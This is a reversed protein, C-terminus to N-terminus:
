RQTRELIQSVADKHDLRGFNNVFNYKLHSSCFTFRSKNLDSLHRAAYDYHTAEQDFRSVRNKPSVDPNEGQGSYFHTLTRGEVEIARMDVGFIYIHDYNMWLAVQMAAYVSSRGIHFGDLMDYSFGHGGLNRIQMSNQKQRDVAGSNIIIGDYEEWLQSHRAHQSRDCFLWFTTPWLAAVPKNISMIDIRPQGSLNTLDQIEAISPGNGIVVLIRGVGYDKLKAVKAKSEPSVDRNRYRVLPDRKKPVLSTRQTRYKNQPQQATRLAKSVTQRPLIAPQPMKAVPQRPKIVKTAKIPKAPPVSVVRQPIKPIQVAQLTRRVAPRPIIKM